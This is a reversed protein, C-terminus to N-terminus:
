FNCSILSDGCAMRNLKMNIQEITKDDELVAYIVKNNKNSGTYITFHSNDDRPSWISGLM